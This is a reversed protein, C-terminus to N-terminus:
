FSTFIYPHQEFELGKDLIHSMTVVYKLIFIFSKFMEISLIFLFFKPLPLMSFTSLQDWHPAVANPIEIREQAVQSFTFFNHTGEEIDSVLLLYIKLKEVVVTLSLLVFWVILEILKRTWVISILSLFVIWLVCPM